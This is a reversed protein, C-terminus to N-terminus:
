ACGYVLTTNCEFSLCMQYVAQFCENGMLGYNSEYVSLLIWCLGHVFKREIMDINLRQLSTLAKYLVGLVVVKDTEGM